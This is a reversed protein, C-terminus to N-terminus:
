EGAELYRAIAELDRDSLEAKRIQPMSGIGSRVIRIVSRADLGERRELPAQGYPTRRALVRTGFGNELHCGGCQSRFLIEGGQRGASAAMGAGTPLWLLGAAILLAPLPLIRCITV